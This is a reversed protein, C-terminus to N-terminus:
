YLEKYFIDIIFENDKSFYLLYNTKYYILINLRFKCKFLLFMIILLNYICKFSLIMLIM